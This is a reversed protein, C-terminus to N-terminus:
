MRKSCVNSSHNALEFAVKFSKTEMSSAHKAAKSVITDNKVWDVDNKAPFSSALTASSTREVPNVFFNM